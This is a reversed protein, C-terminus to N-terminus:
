FLANYSYFYRNERSIPDLMLTCYSNMMEISNEQQVREINKLASDWPIHHFDFLTRLFSESHGEEFKEELYKMRLVEHLFSPIDRKSVLEMYSLTRKGARVLGSKGLITNKELPSGQELAHTLPISFSEEFIHYIRLSFDYATEVELMNLDEYFLIRPTYFPTIVKQLFSSYDSFFTGRVFSVETGEVFLGFPKVVKSQPFPSMQFLDYEQVFDRLDESLNM